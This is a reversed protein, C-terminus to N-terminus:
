KGGLLGQRKLAMGGRSFTCVKEPVVVSLEHQGKQEVDQAAARNVVSSLKGLDTGSRGSQWSLQM